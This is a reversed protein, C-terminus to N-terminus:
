LVVYEVILTLTVEVDFTKYSDDLMAVNCKLYKGGKDGHESDAGPSRVQTITNTGRKMSLRRMFSAMIIEISTRSTTFIELDTDYLLILFEDAIEHTKCIM